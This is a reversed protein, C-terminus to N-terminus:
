MKKLLQSLESLIMSTAGWIHYGQFDIVPVEKGRSSELTKFQPQNDLNLLSTIPFEIIEVVENKELIFDPNRKTYSIFPHVYFNSPPIYIPTLARIIKIYYEPIGIEESTERIATNAFNLDSEDRSGGPFSIQGSHKDKKNTTRVILPFHWENNKLYFVINTAAFRPNKELIQEYTFLDRYPPSYISHAKEGDLDAKKIKDLLDRGIIKM